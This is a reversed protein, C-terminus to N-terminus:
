GGGEIRALRKAEDEAGVQRSQHLKYAFLGGAGAVIVALCIWLAVPKERPASALRITSSPVSRHSNQDLYSFRLFWIQGPALNEFRVLAKDDQESIKINNNDLIKWTPKGEAGIMRQEIVVTEANNAPKRWSAQLAYKGAPQVQINQIQPVSSPYPNNEPQTKQPEPALPAIASTAIKGSANAPRAVQADVPIKLGTINEATIELEFRYTGVALTELIAQFARKEGPEIIATNPDPVLLLDPPPVVRLRAATGGTNKIEVPITRREGAPVKGFDLAKPEVELIAGLAPAQLAISRRFGESELVVEGEIAELFDPPTHFPVRAEGGAGVVVQDPAAIKEPATIDVVRERDTTNRIILGGLRITDGGKATLKIDGPPVLEFPSVASGTLTVASRADHSFVLKETYDRAEAPDFLLRVRKEEKRGLQYKPDGLVKWPAPAMIVGSITGGGTNRITLEEERPEGIMAKPFDLEHVVSFAPPNESVTIQVRGPASVATGQSQVAYSFFDANAGAAETHTYTVVATKDGTLRIEGLKGTKPKVRILFKLPGSTRGIARLPIEVSRGRYISVRQDQPMPPPRPTPSEKPAALLNGALLLLVGLSPRPFKM